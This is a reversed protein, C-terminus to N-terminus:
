LKLHTFKSIRPALWGGSLLIHRPGVLDCSLPKGSTFKMRLSATGRQGQGMSLATGKQVCLKGSAM